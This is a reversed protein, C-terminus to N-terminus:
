NETPKFYRRFIKKGDETQMPKDVAAKVSCFDKIKTHDFRGFNQTRAQAKQTQNVSNKRIGFYGEILTLM